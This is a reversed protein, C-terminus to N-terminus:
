CRDRNRNTMRVVLNGGANITAVVELEPGNVQVQVTM